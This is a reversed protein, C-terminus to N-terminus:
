YQKNVKLCVDSQSVQDVALWTTGYFGSQIKKEVKYRNNVLSGSLEVDM